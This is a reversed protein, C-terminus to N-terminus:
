ISICGLSHSSIKKFENEIQIRWSIFESSDMESIDFPRVDFPDTVECPQDKMLYIRNSLMLAESVNSTAVMFGVKESVNIAKILSYLENKTQHDMAHSSDDIIVFTPKHALSRALSIRFRFGFSDKHPHFKEYGELGVLKILRMIEDKDFNKLAYTVNDFVNRWPFSAPESPIYILREDEGKKIEGSTASELGCIIKCLTTLGSSKAAIISTIKGIQLQCSISKLVVKKLGNDAVYEKSIHKLEIM